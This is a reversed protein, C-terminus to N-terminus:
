QGWEFSTEGIYVQDGPRVGARELARTVGARRLQDQLRELGEDTQLNTMAVIREARRGRVRYGSPIRQVAFADDSDQGAPTLVPLDADSVVANDVPVPIPRAEQLLRWVHRLVPLVGEGTAASIPYAVRGRAEFARRLDPWAERAQPLDMKNAAVVQPREALEAAHLRLEDNVSDFDRLIAEVDGSGADLVHILVVTREVHRLFEHGLGAGEHAGEILGPIDALVFTHDDLDVVGLNPELTTFPYDAIKPRAASVVSLVTSKGANPLGVLGADAILKLELLLSIEEGPEGKDAYRPTQHTPTSFHTNGLGGRGGRAVRVRQGTAALDALLTGTAEDYVQTGPPVEITADAGTKGHKRRGMGNGGHEARIQQNWTYNYLTNMGEVAHVYVSGGRGGDGGDPGGRPVFKERRLHASGDGGNGARVTLKVRDRFM